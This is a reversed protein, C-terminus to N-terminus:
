DLYFLARIRLKKGAPIFVTIDDDTPLQPPNLAVPLPAPDYLGSATYGVVVSGALDDFEWGLFAANPQSLPDNIQLTALLAVAAGVAGFGPEFGVALHDACSGGAGTRSSALYTVPAAQGYVRYTYQGFTFNGNPLVFNTSVASQTRVNFHQIEVYAATSIPPPDIFDEPPACQREGSSYPPECPLLEFALDTCQDEVRLSFCNEPVQCFDIRVRNGPVIEIGQSFAQEVGEVVVAGFAVSVPAAFQFEMVDSARYPIREACEGCPPSYLPPEGGGCLSFDPLDQYNWVFEPRELKFIQPYVFVAL